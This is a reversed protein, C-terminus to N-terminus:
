LDELTNLSLRWPKLCFGSVSSPPTRRDTWPASSSLASAKMRRATFLWMVQRCPPDRQLLPPLRSQSQKLVQHRPQMAVHLATSHRFLAPVADMWLVHNVQLFPCWLPSLRLWLLETVKLGSWNVRLAKKMEFVQSFIYSNALNWNQMIPQM